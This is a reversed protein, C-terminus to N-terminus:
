ATPQVTAAALGLIERAEQPTAPPRGVEQSLRVLREVLQPNTAKEGRRYYLNDELGTRVHGGMALAALNLPLQARGIACVSWLSHPPLQESMHLLQKVTPPAGGRVGLVFQFWYPPTFLGADIYPQANSIMGSEFCEIEPKVQYTAVEHALADLFEPSNIFVRGGFNVSGADFSVIEPRLAVPALRAADGASGVGGSTSMNIIIDCDPAQERITTRVEEFLVPDCIPRGSDDRVHLHAIAAGLKWCRIADAAIEAPTIPLAPNQAKTGASGTLAASIIVRDTLDAM